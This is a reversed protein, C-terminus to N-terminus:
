CCLVLQPVDFDNVFALHPEDDDQNVEVEVEKEKNQTEHINEMNDMSREGIVDPTFESNDLSPDGDVSVHSNNPVKEEGQIGM